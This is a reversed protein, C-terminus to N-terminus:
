VKMHVLLEWDEITGNKNADITDFITDAQSRLWAAHFSMSRCYQVHHLSVYTKPARAEKPNARLQHAYFHSCLTHM